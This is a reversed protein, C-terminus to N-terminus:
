NQTAFSTVFLVSLVAECSSVFGRLRVFFVVRNSRYAQSAPRSRTAERRWNFKTETDRRTETDGHLVTVGGVGRGM